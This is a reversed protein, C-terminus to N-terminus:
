CCPTSPRAAPRFYRRRIFSMPMTPETTPGLAVTLLPGEITQEDLHGGVIEGVIHLAAALGSAGPHDDLHSTVRSRLDFPGDGRHSLMGPEFSEIRRGDVYRGVINMGDGGKVIQLLTTGTSLRTLNDHRGALCGRDEYFWAWAGLVGCRLVVGYKDFPYAAVTEAGTRTVAQGPDTGIGTFLDDPSRDRLFTLCFSPRRPATAWAWSDTDPVTRTYLAHAVAGGPILDAHGHM